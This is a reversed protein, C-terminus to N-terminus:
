TRSRRGRRSALGEEVARSAREIIEKPIKVVFVGRGEVHELGVGLALGKILEAVLGKGDGAPAVILRDGEYILVGSSSGLFEILDYANVGLEKLTMGLRIGIERANRLLDDSLPNSVLEMPIYIFNFSSLLYEIRKEALARPAYYGRRELEVAETILKRLYSVLNMGRRSAINKLESVLSTDLGVTKRSVM